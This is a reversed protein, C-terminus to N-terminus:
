PDHHIGCSFGADAFARVLEAIIPTAEGATLATDGSKRGEAHTLRKDQWIALVTARPEGLWRFFYAVGDHVAEDWFQEYEVRRAKVERHMEIWSAIPVLRATGKIPCDPFSNLM